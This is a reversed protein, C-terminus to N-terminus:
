TTSKAEFRVIVNAVYATPQGDATTLPAMMLKSAEACATDILAQPIEESREAIRECAAVGGEAKVLVAVQAERTVGQSGAPQAVQIVVDPPRVWSRVAESEDKGPNGFLTRAVYNRFLGVIPQGDLDAAPRLRRRALNACEESALRASGVFAVVKCERVKGDPEVVAELVTGASRGERVAWTPYTSLRRGVDHPITVPALAGALVVAAGLM